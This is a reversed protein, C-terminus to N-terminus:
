KLDKKLYTRYHIYYYFFYLYVCFPRARMCFFHIYSNIYVCMCRENKIKNTTYIFSFSSSSVLLLFLFSGSILISIVYTCIYILPLFNEHKKKQNIIM